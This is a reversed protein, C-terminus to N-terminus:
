KKEIEEISINNDVVDALDCIYDATPVVNEGWSRQHYTSLMGQVLHRAEEATYAADIDDTEIIITFNNNSLEVDFDDPNEDIIRNELEKQHDSKNM